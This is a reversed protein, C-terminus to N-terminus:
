HLHSDIQIACKGYDRRDRVAMRALIREQRQQLSAPEYRVGARQFFRRRLSHYSPNRTEKVRIESAAKGDRSMGCPKPIKKLRGATRLWVYFVRWREYRASCCIM